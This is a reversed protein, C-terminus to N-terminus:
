SRAGFVVLGLAPSGAPVGLLIEGRLAGIGFVATVSLGFAGIFKSDIGVFVPAVRAVTAARRRDIPAIVQSAPLSPRLVFRIAQTTIPCAILTRVM